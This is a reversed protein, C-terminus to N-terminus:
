KKVVWINRYVVPNGHGQLYLPAPGPGEARRGPTGKPLELDDHIVVGNHKITVRANATKKGNEDYKAATFDVDYTQWVLPPFCMNVKPEAISYIGGCENNKGDLGFSDLVQVEYRSQLYMGSNGRAQGSAFPKFPTRFELHLQHDGLEVKSECDALLLNDQVIKGNKFHEATTGDFLVLADEPPKKGLTSSKRAVKKLKAHPKDNVMLVAEDSAITVVAGEVEGTVKGDVTALKGKATKDGRSWGEGPLGGRYGVADFKGDGRAIVHLGLLKDAHGDIPGVYEGQIDYDVGAKKPDTFTNPDVDAALAAHASMVAFLALAAFQTKM